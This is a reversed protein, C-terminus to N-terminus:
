VDRIGRLLSKRRKMALGPVAGVKDKNINRPQNTGDDTETVPKRPQNTGDETETVPKKPQNTGDETETVPKRPQNTGDETETVPKRPQRTGDETEEPKMTNRCDIHFNFLLVCISIKISFM